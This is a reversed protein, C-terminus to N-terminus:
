LVDFYTELFCNSWDGKFEYMSIVKHIQRNQNQTDFYFLM